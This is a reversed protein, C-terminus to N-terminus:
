NCYCLIICEM